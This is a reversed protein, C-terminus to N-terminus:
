PKRPSNNARCPEFVKAIEFIKLDKNVHAANRRMNELLGPLLDLRMVAQEESIPNALRVFAPEAASM